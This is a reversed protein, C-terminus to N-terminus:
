RNQKLQGTGTQNCGSLFRVSLFAVTDPLIGDPGARLRARVHARTRRQFHDPQPPKMYHAHKVCLNSSVKTSLKYNSNNSKFSCILAHIFSHIVKQNHKQDRIILIFSDLAEIVSDLSGTFGLLCVTVLTKRIQNCIWCHLRFSSFSTKQLTYSTLFSVM